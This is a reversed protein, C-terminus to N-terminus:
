ELWRLPRTMLEPNEEHRLEKGARIHERMAEEVLDPERAEFAAIIEDHGNTSLVRLAESHRLDGGGAEAVTQLTEAFVQLPLNGTANAIIRHFRHNAESTTMSSPDSEKMEQNARALGDIEAQTIQPTAMRAAIPELWIRADLVELM